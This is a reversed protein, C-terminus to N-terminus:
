IKKRKRYEAPSEKYYDKFCRTFYSPSNFGTNYSIESITQESQELLMAAKKLRMNRLLENPAFNTLAKSKRYLQVRSMGLHKGLLEVNMDPNDINREILAKLQEMFLQDKDVVAEAITAGAFNSSTNYHEKVRRRNEVMNDVVSLLMESNFPKPIYADAGSKMGEIQQQELSRTTFMVVPIHRTLEDSKLQRCCELGDMVPMRVDSVVVDPLFKKAKRLGELGDAAELVKYKSSAIGRVYHRLDSNDDIILLTPLPAKDESNREEVEKVPTYEAIKPLYKGPERRPATADSRSPVEITFTTGEVQDSQLTFSGGHLEVFAHSIALGLGYGEHNKEYQYFPNFIRSSQEEPIYSGTNSIAIRFLRGDKTDSATLRVCVKGNAPTFKVANSLVNFYVREIKEIDLVALWEEGEDVECSFKIAKEHFLVVFSNNWANVYDRLDVTSYDLALANNKYKRFDLIQNVLKLLIDINKDALRLLELQEPSINEDEQLRRVPEAILTLPTRFDHSINTFFNLKQQTEEEIQQSLEILQDRQTELQSKQKLINQNQEVLKQNLRNKSKLASALVILMAVVLVIFLLSMYLITRQNSYSNVYAGVRANLKEIKMEQETIFLSQMEMVKVNTKDIIATSLITERPYERGELIDLATRLVVGVGSPYMFTADLVGKSVLGVGNSEGPLADIGVFKINKERGVSKAACYAGYAMIDNHAFVVDVDEHESLIALMESYARDGIWMADKSCLLHTHKAGEVGKIFGQHREIAPTSGMLGTIEVVKGGRPLLSRIYGGVAEGIQYNNAGVFATYCDTHVNRDVVIVPIGKNYAEEVIPSIAVAENPSVVLLDVGSEIFYRIDEIQQANNGNATRIELSLNDYLMSERLMDSNMKERWEDNTCQSFGIYWVSEKRGCATTCLLCLLAVLVSARSGRLKGIKVRARLM